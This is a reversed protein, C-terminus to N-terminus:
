RGKVVFRVHKNMKELGVVTTEGVLEVSGGKWYWCRRVGLWKLWILSYVVTRLGHSTEIRLLCEM